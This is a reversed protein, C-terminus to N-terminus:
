NSKVIKFISTSGDAGIIHIYYVGNSLKSLSINVTTKGAAKTEIQKSGIADYIGITEGGQLGDVTINSRAPNPYVIIKSNENLNVTRIPSYEYKGSLDIQKLRYLNSGNLPANDTFNYDMTGPYNGAAKVSGITIWQVGDASREVEFRDTNVQNAVKWDLIVSNSNPSKEATFSLLTLSLEIEQVWTVQDGLEGPLNNIDYINATNVTFSYLGNAQTKQAFNVYYTSDNIKTTTVTSDMVNVGQVNLTMTTWDFTPEYVPKNFHVEVQELPYGIVGTPVNTISDVKLPNPNSNGFVLTYNVLGATSFTDVFHLKNEYIPKGGEPL